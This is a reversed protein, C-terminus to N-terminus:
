KRNFHSTVRVSAQWETQGAGSVVTISPILRNNTTDATVDITVVATAAAGQTVDTDLTIVSATMTSNNSVYVRRRAFVTRVATIPTGAGVTVIIDVDHTAGGLSSTNALLKVCNTNSVTNTGDFTANQAVGSATRANTQLCQIAGLAGNYYSRGDSIVLVPENSTGLIVGTKQVTSLASPDYGVANIAVVNGASLANNNGGVLINDTGSVTNSSGGVIHTRTGSKVNSNTTAVNSLDGFNINAAPATWTYNVSALGTLNFNLGTSDTANQLLRFNSSAIQYSPMVRVGSGVIVLNVSQGLQLTTNTIVGGNSGLFTRGIGSTFTVLMSATTACKITIGYGSSLLDANLTFASTAEILHNKNAVASVTTNTTVVNLVIDSASVTQLTVGTAIGKANYTVIPYQTSSGYTGATIVNVLTPEKGDLATQTVTSIPKDADSTNDVNGLGLDTATTGHPNGAVIQSHDYATKGRDGRYATTSTEGLALDSKANFTDWDTGSLYGDTGSAAQGLKTKITSQTEDGTNTGSVGMYTKVAFPTSTKNQGGQVVPILESGVLADAVPMESFKTEAM